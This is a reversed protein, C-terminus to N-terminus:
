SKMRLLSLVSVKPAKAPTELRAELDGCPSGDPTDGHCSVDAVDVVTSYNTDEGETAPACGIDDGCGSGTDPEGAVEHKAWAVAAAKCANVEDPDTPNSCEFFRSNRRHDKDVADDSRIALFGEAPELQQGRKQRPVRVWRCLKGEGEIVATNRKTPMAAQGREILAARVYDLNATTLEVWVTSRPNKSTRIRMSISPLESLAPLELQVSDGPEATRKAKLAEKKSTHMDKFLTNNQPNAKERACDQADNRRERLEDLWLYDKLGDPQGRYAATVYRHFGSDTKSLPIYEIGNVTEM